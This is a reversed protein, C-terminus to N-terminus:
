FYENHGLRNKISLQYLCHRTLLYQVRPLYYRSSNRVLSRLHPSHYQAPFFSDISSLQIQDHGSWSPRDGWIQYYCYWPEFSSRQKKMGRWEEDHSPHQSPEFHSEMAEGWGAQQCGSWRLNPDLTSDYSLYEVGRSWWRHLLVCDITVSKKLTINVYTGHQLTFFKNKFLKVIYHSAMPGRSWLRDCEFGNSLLTM